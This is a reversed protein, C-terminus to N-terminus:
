GCDPPVSSVYWAEVALVMWLPWVDQVPRGSRAEEDLRVYRHVLDEVRVWDRERAISLNAFRDRGGALQFAEAFLHSFEAKTTRLRVAEPLRGAMARRQIARFQGDAWRHSEELSLAFQVVRSDYFPHLSTVGSLADRVGWSDFVHAEWGSRTYALRANQATQRPARSPRIRDNLVADRVLSTSIWPAVRPPRFGPMLTRAAGALIPRVVRRGLVSLAGGGASLRRAASLASWANGRLALEVPYRHSVEFWQDGGAGSLIAGVGQGRAALHLDIWPVGNPSLPLDLTARAEDAMWTASLPACDLLTANLGSARVVEDIYLKEDCAVVDPFMLSYSRLAEGYRREAHPAALAAVSSSDLGGSLEVGIKVPGRMRDTIAETLVYRYHEDAEAPDRYPTIELSYPPAWEWGTEDSTYFARAHGAVVRRVDRYLTEERSHIDNSLVEAIYGENPVRPVGPHAMVGGLHGALIVECEDRWCYLPAIGVRDRACLLSHKGPDWIIAVFDGLLEAFCGRGWKEYAAALVTADSPDDGLVKPGGLRATLSAFGDLRGVLIAVFGAPHEALSFGPDDAFHWVTLPGRSWRAVPDDRLRTLGLALRDGAEPDPKETDRRWHLAFTTM